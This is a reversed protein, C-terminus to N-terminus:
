SSQCIMLLHASFKHQSYVFNIASFDSFCMFFINLTSKSDYHPVFNEGKNQFLMWNSSPYASPQTPGSQKLKHAACSLIYMCAHCPVFVLDIDADQTKKKESKSDHTYSTHYITQERWHEHFLVM